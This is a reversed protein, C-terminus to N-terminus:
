RYAQMERGNHVHHDNQQDNFTFMASGRDKNATLLTDIVSGSDKNVRLPADIAEYALIQTTVLLTSLFQKPLTLGCDRASIEFQHQISTYIKAPLTLPVM